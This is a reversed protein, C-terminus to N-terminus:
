RVHAAPRQAYIRSTHWMAVVLLLAVREAVTGILDERQQRIVVEVFSTARGARVLVTVPLCWVHLRRSPRVAIAVLLVVNVTIIGVARRGSFVGLDVLTSTVAVLVLEVALVTAVAREALLSFETHSEPILWQFM